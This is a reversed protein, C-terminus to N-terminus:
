WTAIAVRKWSNPAVCVYLFAGDTALQGFQGADSHTAPATASIQALNVEQRIRTQWRAQVPNSELTKDVMVDFPTNKPPAELM